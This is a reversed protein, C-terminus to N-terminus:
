PQIRALVDGSAIALLTNEQLPTWHEDTLPVSALLVIDQNPSKVTVGGGAVSESPEVCRRRLLNLGPAGIRGDDHRRVHAHAFLCDGDSYLFNAPGLSGLEAAFESVVDLRSSLSPPEGAALWMDQMRSLLVCFARESDTSGVPRYSGLRFRPDGEIAHLMGNHAFVHIRGGLERSFPHTNMLAVEGRTAHRIHAIVQTSCLERSEVFSVWDSHSAAGAEKILRAYTGHYYAIGWGDKHPGSGGGHDAFVQLSMTVTAPLRSSMAFLECM